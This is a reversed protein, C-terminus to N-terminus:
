FYNLPNLYADHPAVPIRVNAASCPSTAPKGTNRYWDGISIVQVGETALTSMHLHPGTAYGTAGAYGIIDGAQVSQGSSVSIKSLHAFLNSLGNPHELLIWQGYSQCGGVSTNGTARVIGSGPALVKEGVVARFDVGNHTSGNYAGAQAFATNGFYQTVCNAFDLGGADWCSIKAVDSLPPMFVGTGSTPIKTKDIATKLQTELSNLETLFQKKQDEKSKLTKQYEAEKNSTEALLTSQSKKNYLIVDEQDSLNKEFKELQKKKKETEDKDEELNTKLERLKDLSNRLSKQIREIAAVANWVDSLNEEKLVMEILATEDTKHINRVTEAISDVNLDILGEKEVIDYGLKEITLNTADIQNQTVDIEAKLKKQTTELEWIKSQLTQKQASTTLIEKKYQQIEKELEAIRSTRHDIQAKLDDVDAAETLNTTLFMGMVFVVCFAYFINKLFFTSQENKNM